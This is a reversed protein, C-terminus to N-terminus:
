RFFFMYAALQLPSTNKAIEEIVHTDFSAPSKATELRHIKPLMEQLVKHVM